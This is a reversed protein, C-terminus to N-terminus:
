MSPHYHCCSCVEYGRINLDLSFIYDEEWSEWCTEAHETPESPMMHGERFWSEHEIFTKYDKDETAVDKLPPYYEPKIGWTCPLGLNFLLYFFEIAPCSVSSFFSFVNKEDKKFLPSQMEM